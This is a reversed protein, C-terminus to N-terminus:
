NLSSTDTQSVKRKRRAEALCVMKEHANRTPLKKVGGVVELKRPLTVDKKLATIGDVLDEYLCDEFAKLQKDELRSARIGSDKVKEVAKKLLAIIIDQESKNFNSILDLLELAKHGGAGDLLTKVQMELSFLNRSFDGSIVGDQREMEKIGSVGNLLSINM